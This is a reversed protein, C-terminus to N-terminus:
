PREQALARRLRLDRYGDLRDAFIIDIRDSAAGAASRRIVGVLPDAPRSTNAVTLKMAQAPLPREALDHIAVPEFDSLIASVLEESDDVASARIVLAPWARNNSQASQAM